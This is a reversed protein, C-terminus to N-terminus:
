ASVPEFYHSPFLTNRLFSTQQELMFTHTDGITLETVRNLVDVERRTEKCKALVIMTNDLANYTDIADKLAKIQTQNLLSVVNKNTV